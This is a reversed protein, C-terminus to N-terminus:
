LRSGLIPSRKKADMTIELVFYWYNKMKRDQAADFNMLSLRREIDYVEVWQDDLM